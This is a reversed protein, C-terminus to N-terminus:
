KGDEKLTEIFASKMEKDTLIASLVVVDDTLKKFRFSLYGLSSSIAFLGSGIILIDNHNTFWAFLMGLSIIMSLM